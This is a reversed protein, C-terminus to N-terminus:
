FLVSTALSLALTCITVAPLTPNGGNQLFWGVLYRGMDRWHNDPVGCLLKAAHKRAKEQVGGLQTERYRIEAHLLFCRVVRM